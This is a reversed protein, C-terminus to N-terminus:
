VREVAVGGRCAEMTLGGQSWELPATKWAGSARAFRTAHLRASEGGGVSYVALVDRGDDLLQPAYVIQELGPVSGVPPTLGRSELLEGLTEASAPGASLAVLVLVVMLLARM